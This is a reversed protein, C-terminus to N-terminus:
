SNWGAKRQYKERMKKKEEESLPPNMYLMIGLAVPVIVLQMRIMKKGELKIKNWTSEDICTPIQFPTRWSTNRQCLLRIAARM